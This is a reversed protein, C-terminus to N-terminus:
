SARALDRDVLAASINEIARQRGNLPIYGGGIAFLVRPPANAQLIDTITKRLRSKEFEELRMSPREAFVDMPVKHEVQVEGNEERGIVLLRSSYGHGKLMDELERGRLDRELLFAFEDETLLNPDDPIAHAYTTIDIFHWREFPMRFFDGPYVQVSTETM